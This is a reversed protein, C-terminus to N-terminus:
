TSTYNDRKSRRQFTAPVDFYREMTVNSKYREQLTVKYRQVNTVNM